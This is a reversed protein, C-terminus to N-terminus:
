IPEYSRRTYQLLSNAVLDIGIEELVAMEAELLLQVM